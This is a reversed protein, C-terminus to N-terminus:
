CLAYRWWWPACWLTCSPQKAAFSVWLTRKDSGGVYGAMEDSVLASYREVVVSLFLSDAAMCLLFGLAVRQAGRGRCGCPPTYREGGSLVAGLCGRLVGIAHGVDGAGGDRGPLADHRQQGVKLLPHLHGCVINAGKGARRWRRDCSILISFLRLCSM